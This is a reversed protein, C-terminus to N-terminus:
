TSDVVNLDDYDNLVFFKMSIVESVLDVLFKAMSIIKLFLRPVMISLM